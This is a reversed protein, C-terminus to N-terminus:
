QLRRLTDELMSAVLHPDNAPTMRVDGKLGRFSRTKRELVRLTADLNSTPDVVTKWLDLLRELTEGRLERTGTDISGPLRPTVLILAADQRTTHDRSKFLTNVIPVDGLGPVKSSEGVSVGEYLGSLIMTKGFEVDVTADVSQKFTTLQQQFTSGGTQTAFFSRAADVRFRARQPTVEYPTVKVSTGIDIPQLSGLNVGSVGVVITRGIFFESTQGITAVLSPHAVVEYYDERTNFLNLSYNIQPISLASTLTQTVSSVPASVQQTTRQGSFQVTLGDLLNIGAGRTKSNQSLLLTVEIMVQGTDPAATAPGAPMAPAPTQEAVATRLLQQLRPRQMNLEYAAVPVADASALISEYRTRDGSAAATFAATRLAEVSAPALQLARASALRAVSLDGNSYASVALGVFAEPREPDALIARSFHEAAQTTDGRQLAVTGQCYDAWYYGHAFKAAAEYGVSALDLTQLSNGDLQYSLGNLLHWYGNDPQSRLQESLLTRAQELRGARLAAAVAVGV